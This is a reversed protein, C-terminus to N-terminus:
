SREETKLRTYELRYIGAHVGASGLGCESVLAAVVPAVDAVSCGEILVAGAPAALIDKRDRSEATKAASSAADTLCLHAGVIRPRRASATIPTCDIRLRELAAAGNSDFRLTAMVGGRGVGATVAVSTLARSTNRFHSTARKTWATPANLRDLYPASTAVDAGATEYLTLFEPATEPLAALYRSARLFGPVALREPIHEEIHWAYFEDRGEPAIDNWTIIAGRGALTM